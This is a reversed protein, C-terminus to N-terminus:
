WPSVERTKRLFWVEYGVLGCAALLCGAALLWWSGGNGGRAEGLAWWGLWLSLAIALTIFVLHFAKLSM